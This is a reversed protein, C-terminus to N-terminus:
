LDNARQQNLKQKNATIDAKRKAILPISLYRIEYYPEDRKEEGVRTFGRHPEPNYTMVLRVKKGSWVYNIITRGLKNQEKKVIPKGYLSSYLNLLKNANTNTATFYLSILQSQYFYYNPSIISIDGIKEDDNRKRYGKIDYDLYGDYEPSYNDNLDSFIGTITLNSFSSKHSGLKSTKFGNKEDLESLSQGSVSIASFLIVLFLLSRIM